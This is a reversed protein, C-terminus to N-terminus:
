LDQNIVLSTFALDMVGYQWSNLRQTPYCLSHMSFKRVRWLLNPPGPM